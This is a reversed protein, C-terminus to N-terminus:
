IKRRRNCCRLPRIASLREPQAAWWNSRQNPLAGRVFLWKQPRVTLRLPLPLRQQRRAQLLLPLTPRARTPRLPTRQLQRALQRPPIAIRRPCEKKTSRACRQSHRRPPNRPPRPLQPLQSSRIPRLRQRLPPLHIRKRSVITRIKHRPRTRNIPPSRRHRRSPPRQPHHGYFLRSM